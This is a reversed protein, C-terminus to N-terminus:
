RVVTLHRTAVRGSASLRVTYVGAPLRSTDLAVTTEGAAAAGDFVVAVERGLADVVALRAPGAADLAFALAARGAAPNPAPARLSPRTAAARSEAATTGTYQFLRRFSNAWAGGDWTQFVRETLTGAPTRTDLERADPQWASGDWVERRTEALGISTQTYFARGSPVLPGGAEALDLTFATLRGSGDYAFSERAQDALGGAGDDGQFLLTAVHTGSYGILVRTLPFGGTGDSFELVRSIARGADYAWTERQDLVWAAGDWTEYVLTERLGATTYTFTGRYDPQWTGTEVSETVFASAYPGPQYSVTSRFQPQWATGDWRDAAVSLIRGSADTEYRERFSPELQGTGAVDDEALVEVPTGAADYTYTTRFADALGTGTEFRETVVLPRGSADYTATTQNFDADWETGTWTQARTLTACDGAATHAAARAAARATSPGGGRATRDTSRLRAAMESTRRRAARSPPAEPALPEPFVLPAPGFLM